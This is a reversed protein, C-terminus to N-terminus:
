GEENKEDVWSAWNVAIFDQLADEDNSYTYGHRYATTKTAKIAEEVTVRIVNTSDEYPECYQLYRM